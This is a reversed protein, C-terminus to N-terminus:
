TRSAPAVRIGDFRAGTAHVDHDDFSRFVIARGKGVVSWGDAGEVIATDEDIALM